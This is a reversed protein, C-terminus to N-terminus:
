NPWDQADRWKGSENVGHGRNFVNKLLHAHCDRGVLGSQYEGSCLLISDALKDRYKHCVWREVPTVRTEGLGVAVFVYIYLNYVFIVINLFVSDRFM